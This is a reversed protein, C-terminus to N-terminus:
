LTFDLIEDEQITEPAEGFKMSQRDSHVDFEMSTGSLDGADRVKCIRMTARNQLISEESNLIAVVTAPDRLYAKTFSAEFATERGGISSTAGSNLQSTGLWPIDSIASANHLAQLVNNHMVYGEGGGGYNTSLKYTGDVVVLDPKKSVVLNQVDEVTRVHTQDLLWIDGQESKMEPIQQKWRNESFMDVMGNRIDGFPIKHYLADMRGEISHKSNEMSIHLVKMGLGYASWVSQASSYWSKGSSPIGLFMNLTGNEYVQIAQTLTGWLPVVGKVGESKRKLYDEYRLDAETKFGIVPTLPEVGAIGSVITSLCAEPDANELDKGADTVVKHLVSLQQYRKLSKLAKDKPITKPFKIGTTEEAFDLPPFEGTESEYDRVFNLMEESDHKFSTGLLGNDNLLSWDKNEIVHFLVRLGSPHHRKQSPKEKLKM